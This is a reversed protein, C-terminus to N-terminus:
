NRETISVDLQEESIGIVNKWYHWGYKIGVEMPEYNEFSLDKSVVVLPWTPFLTNNKFEMRWILQLINCDSSAADYVTSNLILAQSYNFGLDNAFMGANVITINEVSVVPDPIFVLGTANLIPSIHFTSLNRTTDWKPFVHHSIMLDKLLQATISSNDDKVVTQIVESLSSINKEFVVLTETSRFTYGVSKDGQPATRFQGKGYGCLITGRPIIAEAITSNALSIFLGKEELTSNAEEQPLSLTSKGVMLTLGFEELEFSADMVDHSSLPGSYKSLILAIPESKTSHLITQPNRIERLVPFLRKGNLGLCRWRLGSWLTLFSGTLPLGCLVRLVLFFNLNM